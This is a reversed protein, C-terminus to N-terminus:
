PLRRLIPPCDPSPTSANRCRSPTPSVAASTPNSIPSAAVAPTPTTDPFAAPGSTEALEVVAVGDRHAYRAALSGTFSDLAVLLEGM